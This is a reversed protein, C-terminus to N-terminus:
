RCQIHIFVHDSRDPIGGMSELLPRHTLTIKEFGDNPPSCIGEGM